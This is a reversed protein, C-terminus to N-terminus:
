ERAAAMPPPTYSCTVAPTQPVPSRHYRARSGRDATCFQHIKTGTSHGAHRAPQDTQAQDTAPKRQLDVTFAVGQSGIRLHQKHSKTGLTNTSRATHKAGNLLAKSSTATCSQWPVTAAPQHWLLGAKALLCVSPCCEPMWHLWICSHM